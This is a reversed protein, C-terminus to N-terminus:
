QKFFNKIRSTGEMSEIGRVSPAEMETGLPVLM